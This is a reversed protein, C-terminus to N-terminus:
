GAYTALLAGGIEALRARVDPPDVVELAAAYGSLERAPDDHSPPFGIDVHVRGDEEPGVTLRTGFQVRLWRVVDPDARATVHRLGRGEDLTTVIEEWARTLDFDPPRVAPEATLEVSQVRWVRFTRRGAATDAVLYWTRGKAVLGLPHVTRV